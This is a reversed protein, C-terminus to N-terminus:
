TLRGSFGVGSAALRAHGAMLRNGGDEERVLLSCRSCEVLQELEDVGLKSQDGSSLETAPSGIPGNEVRGAQNVLRVELEHIGRLYAPSIAIMEEGNGRAGHTLDDDIARALAATQFSPGPPRMEIEIRVLDRNVRMHFLKERDVFRKFAELGLLGSQQLDDFAAVKRPIGFLFGRFRKRDGSPRDLAVPQSSFRPKASRHETRRLIAQARM